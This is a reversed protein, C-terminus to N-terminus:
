RRWLTESSKWEAFVNGKALRIIYRIAEVIDMARNDGKGECGQIGSLCPMEAPNHPHPHTLVGLIFINFENHTWKHIRLSNKM